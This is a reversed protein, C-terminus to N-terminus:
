FPQLNACVTKTVLVSHKASLLTTPEVIWSDAVQPDIGKTSGPILQHSRPQIMWDKQATVRRAKYNRGCMKTTAKVVKNGRRLEKSIYDLSVKAHSMLTADILLDEEIHDVIVDYQVTVCLEPIHIEITCEGIPDHSPGYLGRVTEPTPRLEPQPELALYRKYSLIPVEAGGDYM